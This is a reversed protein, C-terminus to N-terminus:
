HEILNKSCQQINSQFCNNMKNKAIEEDAEMGEIRVEM